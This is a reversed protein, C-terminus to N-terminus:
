NFYKIFIHSQFSFAMIDLGVQATLFDGFVDLNYTDM